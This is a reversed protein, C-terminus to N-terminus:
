RQWFTKKDLDKETFEDEQYDREEDDDDNQSKDDPDFRSSLAPLELDAYKKVATRLPVVWQAGDNPDGVIDAWNEGLSIFGKLVIELNKIPADKGVRLLGAAELEKVMSLITVGWLQVLACVGDGDDSNYWMDARDGSSWFTMAECAAWMQQLKEMKNMKRSVSAEHYKQLLNEQLEVQGYAEWDNYIYMSLADPNCRLGSGIAQILLESGQETMVWRWEPYQQMHEDWDRRCICWKVWNILKNGDADTKERPSSPAKDEDEEAEGEDEDENEDEEGEPKEMMM